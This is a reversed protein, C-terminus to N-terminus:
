YLERSFYIQIFISRHIHTLNFFIAVMLTTGSRAYGGIFIFNHESQNNRFMENERKVNSFKEERKISLIGMLLFVTTFFLFFLALVKKKKLFIM